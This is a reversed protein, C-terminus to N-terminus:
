LPVFIVELGGGQKVLAGQMTSFSGPAVGFAPDM